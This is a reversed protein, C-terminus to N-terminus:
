KVSNEEVKQLLLNWSILWRQSTEKSIVHRVEVPNITTTINTDPNEVSKVIRPQMLVGNNAIASVASILQIPTITFRQGFSATALEVPGVKNFYIGTVEGSTAIGTKTFLGFANM